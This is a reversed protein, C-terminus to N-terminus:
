DTDAERIEVTMRNSGVISETTLSDFYFYDGESVEFEPMLLCSDQKKSLLGNATTGWMGSGNKELNEWVQKLIFDMYEDDPREPHSWEWDDAEGSLIESTFGGDNEDFEYSVSTEYSSVKVKIEDSWPGEQGGLDVAQVRYWYTEGAEATDDYWLIRYHTKDVGNNIFEEKADKDLMAVEEFESDASRREIRYNEVDPEEVKVFSICLGKQDVVAKLGTVKEPIESGATDLELNDLYWGVGSDADHGFFYFRLLLPKSNGAYKSLSYTNHEWKRETIDPRKTLNYVVEWDDEDGTYSAQIESLSIGTFGVYMDASLFVPDGENMDSLDVPPLYLYSDVRKEFTSQGGDIGIYTNGDDPMEPEAASERHSLKWNGEILFGQMDEEFDQKWPVKIGPLIQMTKEIKTINDAYDTIEARLNLEGEELIDADLVAGYIGDNQEGDTLKLSIEIEDGDQGIQYYLAAKKISVDEKVKVSVEVDRGLYGSDDGIFEASSAGTDTGLKKVTGSISGITKGKLRAVADYANILGYGYGMNPTEQYKRDTLPEATETIVNKIERVSLGPAAQKLLAVVGTVHPTAMSTGNWSVYNGTADVSRVQVGPAVIEPKIIKGTEDFASPGVLSFKGLNKNRDM